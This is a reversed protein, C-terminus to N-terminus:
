ENAGKGEAIKGAREISGAYAEVEIVRAVRKELNEMYDAISWALKQDQALLEIGCILDPSTEFEVTREAPFQDHVADTIRKRLSKSIEFATRVTVKQDDGPSSGPSKWKEADFGRIKETFVGIMSKEIDANALVALAHRSVRYAEECM